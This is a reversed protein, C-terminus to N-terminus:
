LDPTLLILVNFAEVYCFRLSLPLTVACHGTWLWARQSIAKWEDVVTDIDSSQLSQTGSEMSPWVMDQCCCCVYCIVHVCVVMRSPIVISPITRYV